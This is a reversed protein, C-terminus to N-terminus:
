GATQHRVDSTGDARGDIVIESRVSNAIYCAEHSAHHLAEVAAETPRKDGEFVVHPRLTVQTMWERADETKGMVGVARDEYSAVTYGDRAALSLFFLMHCSSVSAVLAEEPDVGVPDSFPSRVVHPSASARVIAGGDFTWQHARSYGNDTFREQPQRHWRVNAEHTAV